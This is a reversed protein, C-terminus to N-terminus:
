NARDVLRTKCIRDWVTMAEGFHVVAHSHHINHFASTNIGTPAILKEAWEIRVGCHLYFNLNM